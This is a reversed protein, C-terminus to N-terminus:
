LLHERFFELTRRVIQRSREDANLIDFGHEGEPHNHLEFTLNRALAETVFEDISKNVGPLSDRGARAILLPPIARPQDTQRLYSVPSYARLMEDSVSVPIRARVPALNLRGYFAAACRVFAYANRLLLSLGVPTGGSAMWLGLRQADIGLDPAQGIV